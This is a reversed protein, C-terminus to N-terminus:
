LSSCRRYWTISSPDRFALPTTPKRSPFHNECAPEPCVADARRPFVPSALQLRWRLSVPGFPLSLGAQRQVLSSLQQVLLCGPGVLLHPLSSKARCATCLPSLLVTVGNGPAQAGEGWRVARFDRRGKPSQENGGWQGAGATLGSWLVGESCWGAAIVEQSHPQDGGGWTIPQLM